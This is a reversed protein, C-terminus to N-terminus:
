KYKHLIYPTYNISTKKFSYLKTLGVEKIILIHSSELKQPRKTQNKKFVNVCINGNSNAGIKVVNIKKFLIKLKSQLIM